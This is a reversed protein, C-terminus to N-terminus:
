LTVTHEIGCVPHWIIVFRVLLITNQNACKRTEQVFEIEHQKLFACLM